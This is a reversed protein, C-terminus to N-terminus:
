ESKLVGLIEDDRCGFADPERGCEHRRRLLHRSRCKVNESCCRLLCEDFILIDHIHLFLLLVSNEGVGGFRGLPSLPRISSTQFRNRNHLVYQQSASMSGLGLLRKGVKQQWKCKWLLVQMQAQVQRREASQIPRPQHERRCLSRSM